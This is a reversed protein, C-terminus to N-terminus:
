GSITQNRCAKISIKESYYEVQMSSHYDHCHNDENCYKSPNEVWDILKLTKRIAKLPTDDFIKILVEGTQSRIEVCNGKVVPKIHM